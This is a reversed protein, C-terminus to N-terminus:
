LVSELDGDFDEDLVADEVEEGLYAAIVAQNRRLDGPTGSAIVRGRDLVHVFQCVDFVLEVDHEILLVTTQQRSLGRIRNRLIQREEADLGSAPEDLIVLQPDAVLARAVAVLRRQGTSIQTPKLDALHAIGLSDM